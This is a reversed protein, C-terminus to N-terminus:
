YKLIEVCAKTDGARLNKNQILFGAHVKRIFVGMWTSCLYLM